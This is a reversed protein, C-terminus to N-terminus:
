QEYEINRNKRVFGFILEYGIFSVQGIRETNQDFLLVNNKGRVRFFYYNLPLPLCLQKM